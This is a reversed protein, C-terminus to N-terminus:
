DNIEEYQSILDLFEEMNEKTRKGQNYDAIIEAKDERFRDDLFRSKGIKSVM